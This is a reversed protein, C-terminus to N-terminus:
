LRKFGNRLSSIESITKETHLETPNFDLQEDNNTNKLQRNAKGINDKIELIIVTSGKDAKTIIIDNRKQLNLLAESESKALNDCSSKKTKSCKMDRNIATIFTEVCSPLKGPLWNSNSKFRLENSNNASSGFHARLKINRYFTLLNKILDSFM